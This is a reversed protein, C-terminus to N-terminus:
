KNRNNLWEKLVRKAERDCWDNVFSRKSKTGKHAKVHRFTIEDYNGFLMENILGAVKAMDQDRMRQLSKAKVYVISSKSDTNIILRKTKIGSKVFFHVANAICMLEALSSNKTRKRLMGSRKIPGYDTSIWFAYSCYKGILSIDTTITVNEFGM